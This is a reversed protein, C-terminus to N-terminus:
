VLIELVTITGKTGNNIFCNTAGGARAFQIKYTTASTTAPSDVYTMSVPENSIIGSVSNNTWFWNGYMVSTSDRVIQFEGGPGGSGSAFSQLVFSSLILIKSTASTPTITVTMNTADVFSTSTTTTTTTTEATIV